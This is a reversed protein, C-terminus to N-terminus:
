VSSYKQSVYQGSKLSFSKWCAIIDYWDLCRLNPFVSSCASASFAFYFGQSFVCM